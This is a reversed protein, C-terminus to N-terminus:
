LSGITICCYTKNFGIYKVIYYYEIYNMMLFVM